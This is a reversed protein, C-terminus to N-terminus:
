NKYTNKGDILGLMYIKKITTLNDQIFILEENLFLEKNDKIREKCIERVIDKENKTINKNKM